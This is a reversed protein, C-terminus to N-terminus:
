VHHTALWQELMLINWLTQSNDVKRSVHEHWLNEIIKHDVFQSVKVEKAFLLGEAWDKLDHRLWDAIPVGFGSKPKNEFLTDPIKRKLLERLIWKGQKNKIKFKLPLRWATEFLEKSLFPARTELSFAMSARDVKTLIDGPLYTLADALMLWQTFGLENLFEQSPYFSPDDNSGLSSSRCLENYFNIESNVNALATLTKQLKTQIHKIGLIKELRLLLNPYKQIEKLTYISPKRLIHPLKKFNQFISEGFIHRNYGGFLEDGGDGTLAVTVHKKALKSVLATPIQSSDAFPEDYINALKPVIDLYDSKKIYLETHQTGLYQAIHKADDAEDFSTNENGITFTNIPKDSLSQYYATIISSDIGGSLFCGIPVDSIKRTKISSTLARDVEFFAEEENKILHNAHQEFATEEANWYQHMKLNSSCLDYEIYHGPKLKFINEYISYPAPIYGYALFLNIAKQSINKPLKILNALPRLESSFYLGGKYTSYYLPKEGFRDRILYAKKEKQDYIGFAYMGDIKELTKIVGWEEIAQLLVETDSSSKFNHGLNKLEQQIILFNYIEGNFTIVFRESQSVMPQHGDASVDLISLRTHGFTVNKNNNQWIGFDDPGRHKLLGLSKSLIDAEAKQNIIGLIGCM